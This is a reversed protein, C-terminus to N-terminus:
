IWYNAWFDRLVGALEVVRSLVFMALGFSVVAAAYFLPRIKLWSRRLHHSAVLSPILNHGLIINAAFFVVFAVVIWLNSLLKGIERWEVSGIPAPDV